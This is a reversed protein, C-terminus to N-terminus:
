PKYIKGIVDNYSDMAEDALYAEMPDSPYLGHKQGIYRLMAMSQGLRTGDELELCPIQNGPVNPKLVPWDAMKVTCDEWEVGAQDLAM